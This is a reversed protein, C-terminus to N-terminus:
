GYQSQLSGDIENEASKTRSRRIDVSIVCWPLRPRGTACIPLQHHLQICFSNAGDLLIKDGGRQGGCGGGCPGLPSSHTCFRLLGGRREPGLARLFDASWEVVPTQLPASLYSRDFVGFFFCFCSWCLRFVAGLVVRM